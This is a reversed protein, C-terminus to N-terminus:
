RLAASVTVAVQVRVGIWHAENWGELGGRHNEGPSNIAATSVDCVLPPQREECHGEGGGSVATKKQAKVAVAGGWGGAEASIIYSAYVSSGHCVLGAKLIAMKRESANLWRTNEYSQQTVHPRLKWVCGQGGLLGDTIFYHVVSATAHKYLVTHTRPPRPLNHFIKKTTYHSYTCM